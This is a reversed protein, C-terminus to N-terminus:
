GEPARQERASVPQAEQGPPVLRGSKLGHQVGRWLISKRTFSALWIWFAIADWAPILAFKRWLGKQRLGYIGIMWSLALRCLLYGGLYSAAVSVTPRVAVAVISWPLGWTLLLGLHGWPRMARMVTMWRTRKAMLSGLGKYDAVTEVVYPLLKMEFGQQAILRGLLLDDAPRNELVRFGGFHRV